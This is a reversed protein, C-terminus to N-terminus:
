RNLFEYSKQRGFYFWVFFMSCLFTLFLSLFISMALISFRFYLQMGLILFAERFLNNALIVVFCYLLIALVFSILFLITIEINKEYVIDKKQYGLSMRLQYDKLNSLIYKYSYNFVVM